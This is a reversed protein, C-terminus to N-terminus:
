KNNLLQDITKNFSTIKPTSLYKLYCILEGQKSFKKSLFIYIGTAIPLIIALLFSKSVLFVFALVSVIIFVVKKLEIGAIIPTKELEKPIKYNM